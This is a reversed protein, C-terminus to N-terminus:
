FTVKYDKPDYEYKNVELKREVREEASKDSSECQKRICEERWGENVVKEIINKKM